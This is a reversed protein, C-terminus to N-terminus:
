LRYPSNGHYCLKGNQVFRFNYFGDANTTTTDIPNQLDNANFLALNVGGIGQDLNADFIDPDGNPDDVWVRDGITTGSYEIFISATGICGTQNDIVTVDYSVNVQDSTTFQTTAGDSWQYSYDGSGIEVDVFLDTFVVGNDCEQNEYYAYVFLEEFSEVFTECVTTCGFADTATVTYVGADLNTITADTAGNSWTYTFPATGGDAIVTAQGGVDCTAPITTVYCFLSDITYMYFETACQAGDADEIEVAYSGEALNGITYQQGTVNPINNGNLNISFPAQGGLYITAEGNAGGCSAPTTVEAECEFFEPIILGLDYNNYEIGGTLAVTLADFDSDVTDDTGQNALTPAGQNLPFFRISFDTAIFPFNYFGDENTSTTSIINGAPDYIQIRMDTVLSEGPERIGNENGDDWVVGNIAAGQLVEDINIRWEGMITTQGSQNSTGEGMFTGETYEGQNGLLTIEAFTNDCDSAGNGCQFDFFSNSTWIFATVESIPLGAGVVADPILMTIYNEAFTDQAGTIVLDGNLISASPNLIIREEGNIKYLIYEDIDECAEIIQLDVLTQGNLAFTFEESTRLNDLDYAIVTISGVECSLLNQEFVGNEDVEAIFFYGNDLTIKAYGNEVPIGSCQLTGRVTIQNPSDVVIEGFSTDTSFPGINQEVAVNGCEDKILLTLEENKPVKGSFGGEADTWGYGTQSNNFALICINYWPLPNGDGDVLKGFINVLPFPADCNWFSFHSVEAVYKGNSLTAAAEEEWYVTEENLSWTKITQPAQSQMDEPVPFELTANKGEALNLEVGNSSFLEVAMMGYTSLQQIQGETNVARLDGPMEASFSTSAPNYWHPM